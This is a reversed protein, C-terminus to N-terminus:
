IILKMNDTFVPRTFKYIRKFIRIYLSLLTAHLDATDAAFKAYSRMETHVKNCNTYKGVLSTEDDVVDYIKHEKTKCRSRDHCRTHATIPVVHDSKRMDRAGLSFM